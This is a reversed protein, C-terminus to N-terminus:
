AVEKKFGCRECRLYVPSDNYSEGGAGITTEHLVTYLTTGALTYRGCGGSADLDQAVVVGDHLGVAHLADGVAIRGKSIATVVLRHGRIYGSFYNHYRKTFEFRSAWRHGIIRCLLRKM